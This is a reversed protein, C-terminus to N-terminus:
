RALRPNNSVQKFAIEASRTKCLNNFHGMQVPNLSSVDVGDKVRPEPGVSSLAVVPALGRAVDLTNSMKAIKASLDAVTASLAVIRSDDAPPTASAAVAQVATGVLSMIKDMNESIKASLEADSLGSLKSMEAMVLALPSQSPDEALEAPAEDEPKDEAPPPADAAMEAPKEEEIMPEKAMLGVGQFSLQIPAMGELFPTNTLGVSTIQLGLDKGTVRDTVPMFVISCSKYEGGRIYKAAADTWEVRAWLEAGREGHRISMEHIHGSAPNPKGNEQVMMTQHEYDVLLPEGHATFDAVWKQFLKETLEIPQGSHHGLWTGVYALQMDGVRKASVAGVNASISLSSRDRYSYVSAIGV